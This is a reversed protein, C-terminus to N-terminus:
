ATTGFYATQVKENNRIMQFNGQAIIEGEALVFVQECLNAIVDMNHEIIVFTVGLGNLNRVMQWLTARLTPNVGAAPEDLLILSPESMLVRLFEILKQQGYSLDAGLVDDYDQLHVQELLEKARSIAGRDRRTTAVILNELVTLRPFVRSLQFTRALGRRYIAYPKLGLIAEDDFLVAGKAGRDIGSVCQFLTTKGSGNPGILGVIAGRRVELNVKHLARIGGFTRTLQKISLISTSKCHLNQTPVTM